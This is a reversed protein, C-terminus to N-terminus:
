LINLRFKSYLSELYSSRLLYKQKEFSLKSSQDSLTMFNINLFTFLTDEPFYSLEVVFTNDTIVSHETCNLAHLANKPDVVYLIVYAAYAYCLAALDIFM